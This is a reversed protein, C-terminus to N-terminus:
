MGLDREQRLEEEPVSTGRNHWNHNAPYGKSYGSGNGNGSGGLAPSDLIYEGGGQLTGCLRGFLMTLQWLNNEIPSKPYLYKGDDRVHVQFFITERHNKLLTMLDYIINFFNQFRPTSNELLIYSDLMAQAKGLLKNVQALERFLDEDQEKTLMSFTQRCVTTTTRMLNMINHNCVEIDASLAHFKDYIDKLEQGSRYTSYEAPTDGREPEDPPPM